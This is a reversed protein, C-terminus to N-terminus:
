LHIHKLEDWHDQMYTFTALKRTRYNYPYEFDKYGEWEELHTNGDKDVKIKWFIM